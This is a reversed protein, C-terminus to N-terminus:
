NYCALNCVKRFAEIQLSERNLFGGQFFGLKLIHAKDLHRELPEIVLKRIEQLLYSPPLLLLSDRYCSIADPPTALIPYPVNPPPFAFPDIAKDVLCILDSNNTGLGFRLAYGANQKTIIFHPLSYTSLTTPL